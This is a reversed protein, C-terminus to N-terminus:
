ESAAGRRASPARTRHCRKIDAARLRSSCNRICVALWAGLSKKDAAARIGNVNHCAIIVESSPAGARGPISKLFSSWSPAPVASYSAWPPPPGAHPSAVPVSRAAGGVAAAAAEVVRKRKSSM